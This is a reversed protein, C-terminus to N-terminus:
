IRLFPYIRGRVVCTSDLWMEYGIRPVQHWVRITSFFLWSLNIVPFGNALAIIVKTVPCGLLNSPTSFNSVVTMLPEWHKWDGNRYNYNYIYIIVRQNKWFFNHRFQNAALKPDALSFEPSYARKPLSCVSLVYPSLRIIICIIWINIEFQLEYLKWVYRYALAPTENFPPVWPGM